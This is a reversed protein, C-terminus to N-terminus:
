KVVRIKQAACDLEIVSASRINDFILDGCGIASPLNLEAARIAMHSAAGGYKTILGKISRGFIWDYGPDAQTILIIKDTMDIHQDIEKIEMIPASVVENTIFNPRWELLNFYDIDESSRIVHPLKIARHVAYKKKNLNILQALENKILYSPSNVAIDLITHIPIYAIDEKHLGIQKGLRELLSLVISLNKTYEFKMKERAPISLFIFEFLQKSDFSFGSKKLLDNIIPAHLQFIRDTMDKNFKKEKQAKGKFNDLYFKANEAYSPSYIDYTGPRLHGYKQLFDYESISKGLLRNIDETIETAVSPITQKILSVEDVSLINKDRLSNLFAVAIFAYRALVCFQLTGFQMCDDLLIRVSRIIAFIDQPEEELVAKRREELNGVCRTMEQIPSVKGTVIDDTLERLKATYEEIEQRGFGYEMLGKRHKDFNLDLCTPIIEFEIKDHYEPHRELKDIFYNILKERLGYSIKAPVFSNFSTRVDVYPQGAFSVVLPEFSVDNYHIMKRADAWTKDSIIKQFLSLALPKPSVGILEAPNWDPMNAFLTRHGAILSKKKTVWTIYTKTMNIEEVIDDDNIGANNQYSVLPRVQLLYCNSNEDFAFEIDLYDNQLLEELEHILKLLKSVNPSYDDRFSCSRNIVTTQLNVGCGSTVTDTRKSINDYNILIYPARTEPDRTFIVGSIDVKMLQNQVFIENDLSLDKSFSEIVSVIGEQLAQRNKPQINGISLFKGAMSAKWTDENVASSRVIVFQDDFKKQIQNIVRERNENWEKVTFRIQDLIEAEKIIPRLRELTKAKTGFVFRSISKEDEVRSWHDGIDVYNLSLGNGKLIEIFDHIDKEGVHLKSDNIQNLIRGIVGDSILMLGSIQNKEIHVGNAHKIGVGIKINSSEKVLREIAEKRFIIDSPVILCEGSLEARACYLAQLINKEKWASNYYYRLGSYNQVVKEIHYGGVFAIDKIKIQNLATLIWDLLRKGQTDQLLAM